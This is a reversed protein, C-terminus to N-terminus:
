ADKKTKFYQLVLITIDDSQPANSVFNKLDKLSNETMERPTMRLAGKFYLNMREYDYMKGDYNMAENVGDTYLYLYDGANLTIRREQFVFGDMVGLAIGPMKEFQSFEGNNRIVYPFNHGGNSYTLEGTRINLIGLFITVFMCSTNDICLDENVRSLVVGPTLNKSSKAKILTRTVAMFLSAPVGKGSVDGICFCLNDDDIFFFDYFDGGVEKAPEICAYIDFETRQPFAPFTRPLISMQIDHAIKLESEIREKAATTEKLQDIYAKLSSKMSIFSEALKGVEDRSKIVPIEADLDGTGIKETAQALHRLPRTISGTIFVIIVGLLIFGLFNLLVLTRNLHNLDGMLEDVPFLVGLSWGSSLLPEYAILAKGNTMINNIPVFASNGQIMQRGIERLVPDNKEEAVSFITENMILNKQPHTIVTGNKSILFGYGNQYIKISSVIERLWELSIDATVVGVFQKKGNIIRHFPVSYSSMIINAGGEDYYPESWGARDLEKPIQFWDDYFYEYDAGGLYMFKLAKQASDRYCYVCYYRTDKKFAYPAFAVTRGSINPNDQLVRRLLNEIERGSITSDEELVAALNETVRKIPSLVSEIQFVTARALNKANEEVNKIVIRRSIIYNYSFIMTIILASSALILVILKFALGKNKIM